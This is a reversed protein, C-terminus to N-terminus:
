PIRPRTTTTSNCRWSSSAWRPSCIQMYHQGLETHIRAADEASQSKSTKPLSEGSHTTVCGGLLACFDVGLLIRELRM